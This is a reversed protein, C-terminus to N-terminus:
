NQAVGTSILAFADEVKQQDIGLISAVKALLAASMIPMGGSPRQGQNGAPPQGPTGSPVAGPTGGPPNFTGMGSPPNSPVTEGLESRAQTIADELTKQDIGLAAAVKAM